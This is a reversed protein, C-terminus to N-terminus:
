LQLAPDYHGIGFHRDTRKHIGALYSVTASKGWLSPDASAATAFTMLINLVLQTWGSSTSPWTVITAVAGSIATLALTVITKVKASVTARTVLAIAAPILTGVVMTIVTSTTVLVVAAIIM